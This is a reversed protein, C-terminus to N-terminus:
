ETERENQGLWVLNDPVVHFIAKKRNNIEEDIEPAVLICRM